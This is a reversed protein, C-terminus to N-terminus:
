IVIHKKIIKRNKPKNIEILLYFLFKPVDSYTKMLQGNDVGRLSSGPM